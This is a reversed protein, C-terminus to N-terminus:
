GVQAFTIATAAGQVGWGLYSVLLVDLVLNVINQAIGAILPTRCQMYFM